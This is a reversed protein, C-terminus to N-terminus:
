INDFSAGEKTVNFEVRIVELADTPQIFIKGVLEKRDSNDDLVVKFQTIGREKRINDLIPNVLALFENRVISDNPQFLLNMSVATILKRTQLLLRRVNVSDLASEAVQMTKNGWINTGVSTSTLIPNIRGAYLTERMDQTLKVRARIGDIKGRETGAVAYWPYSVSDTLAINRLVDRTPPLFIYQNNETDNVQIWPWYTATYNSDYGDIKSVADDVSLAVGGSDTDPTTVIYISDCRETEVMEIAEETLDTHSEVDIGPTAFVNIDVAEPNSFTRIGEFYAYYDSNSGNEGTSTTKAKFNNLSLAGKAGNVTYTDTNTRQDRYIDWGDFGGSPVFTFKRSDIKEYDTGTLGLDNRFEANGTSFSYAVSGINVSTAGSDMHFGKTTGTWDSDTSDLGKYDFFDQDIGSTNSLGLYVKRKKDSAKYTTRYVLEPTKVTTKGNSQYDRVPTGLFGAPFADTTDADENLEVLVYTSNSPYVGDLTGIRRGIYNNSAPDMSCRSFSEIINPSADTDSFSRIVVDFLKDDPKINQISIKFEKNAYNGDSITWLRFLKLVENGRVESVLYPTVASQYEEKYNKFSTEYDVLDLKLGKVKGEAILDDLLDQYVEEAFIGAKSDKERVGIVKTIYNKKATDFSIDYSVAGQVASTGSLVFKAYPNTSAGSVSTDFDIDTAGSFEFIIEEVGNYQGRSRLLSVLMNEADSYSTGSFHVTSGSATGNFTTGTTTSVIGLNFTAGSFTSGNKEFVPGGSITTGTGSSILGSLETDLLGADFLNQILPDGSTLSVISNTTTDATYSMFTSGSFTAGNGSNGSTSVDLAADITIGWAQGADYGSFGLVRTIYLQNSQSLYSKAIYPAEYKPLGTGKFKEPNQGGFFAKFENYDSVFIPQFAPGKVTEGVIGATTVGVNSTVFSLDKETTYVGPSVFVKNSAM